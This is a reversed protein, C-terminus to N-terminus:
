AVRPAPVIMRANSHNRKLVHLYGWANASCSRGRSGSWRVMRARLEPSVKYATESM